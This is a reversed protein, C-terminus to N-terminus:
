PIEIHDKIKEVTDEVAKLRRPISKWTPSAAKKGAVIDLETQHAEELEEERHEIAAKLERIIEQKDQDTKRSLQQIITKEIELKDKERSQEM